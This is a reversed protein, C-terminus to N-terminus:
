LVPGLHGYLVAWERMTAVTWLRIIQDDGGSALLKGDPSLAVCRVTGWHRGRHEGLVAVLEAPQWIMHDERPIKTPDLHDLPSPNPALTGGVSPMNVGPICVFLTELFGETRTMHACGYM